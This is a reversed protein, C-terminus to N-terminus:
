RQDGVAEAAEAPGEAQAAISPEPPVVHREAVEDLYRLVTAAVAVVPVALFAGAVGFLTSGLTVALLIVAAHLDMTKGQLLPQLVNGEIQQVALIIVLVVLAGALGNSVLAVLVAIAGVVVAGVIPVFGGFFTLIALPIAAPVGVILLGAGILVGDAAGVLAQARIFGGLVQWSRRLVEAVHEGASRGAAHTALPIFRHGDKLFFFTLVLTLLITILASAVAGVGVLIGSAIASASSQLRDQMAQVATDLQDRTVFSNSQLWDRIQQLGESASGAINDVQSAVSPAILVFVLGLVALAGVLTLMAALARPLRLRLHMLRALPELLTTLILALVTPLLIGWLRGVLMGVLLAAGAIILWRLSWSATWAIGRGIVRERTVVPAPSSESHPSKM